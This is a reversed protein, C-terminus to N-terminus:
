GEAARERDLRADEDAARADSRPVTPADGAREEASRRQAGSCVDRRWGPQSGAQGRGRGPSRVVAERDPAPQPVAPSVDSQWNQEVRSLLYPAVYRRNWGYTLMGLHNGWHGLWAMEPKWAIQHLPARLSEDPVAAFVNFGDMGASARHERDITGFVSTGLGLTWWDLASYYNVFSGDVHTLAKSLDYDPSIAPHVLVVNRLRMSEPLAEAVLVALGGGGSYGVLDIPAAPQRERYEVLKSAVDAARRRNRAYDTLNRLANLPEYWDFLRIESEVGADRYARFARTMWWPGGDIGPFVYVLGTETQRMTPAQTSSCGGTLLAAIALGALLLPTARRPRTENVPSSPLPPKEDACEDM